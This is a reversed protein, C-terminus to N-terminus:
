HDYLVGSGADSALQSLEIHYRHKSEDPKQVRNYFSLVTQRQCIRTTVFLQILEDKVKDYDPLESEDYIKCARRLVNRAQKDLMKYLERARTPGDRVNKKKMYEEFEEIWKYANMGESFVVPINHNSDANQKYRNWLWKIVVPILWCLAVNSIWGAASVLSTIWSMLWIWSNILRWLNKIGVGDNWFSSSESQKKNSEGKKISVPKYKKNIIKEELDKRKNKEVPKEVQLDNNEVTIENMKDEMKIKDNLGNEETELRHVLHNTEEIDEMQVFVESETMKNQGEQNSSIAARRATGEMDVDFLQTIFLPGLMGLLMNGVLSLVTLSYSLQM